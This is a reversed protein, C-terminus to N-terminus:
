PRSLQRLHLLHQRQRRCGNNNCTVIIWSLDRKSILHSHSIADPPGNELSQFYHADWADSDWEQHSLYLTISIVRSNWSSNEDYLLRSWTWKWGRLLQWKFIETAFQDCCVKHFQHLFHEQVTQTNRHPKDIPNHDLAWLVYLTHQVTCWIISKPIQTPGRLRLSPIRSTKQTGSAM